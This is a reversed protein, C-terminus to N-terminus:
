YKSKRLTLYNYGGISNLPLGKDGTLPVQELMTMAEARTIKECSLDFISQEKVFHDRKEESDFVVAARTNAFGGSPTNSHESHAVFKDYKVFYHRM